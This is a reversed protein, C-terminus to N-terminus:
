LHYSQYLSKLWFLQYHFLFLFKGLLSLSLGSQLSLPLEGVEDLFITGGEGEEFLGKHQRDAGTFAGKAHGFLESELLAEPISGCNIPVLPHNRRPSAFHIGCAILEKGTGSEGTILVTTNYRAVKIALEFVQQMARSEGVMGAFDSERELYRLQDRLRRNERRLSEREEAKRLAMVVEDVKFPKSIFDYAGSKMAELALDITGYASMMIVAAEGRCDGSARLFDMGNMNPMKVDCLIFDFEENQLLELAKLGDKATTAAYGTSETMIKLMHRMNKEDDIILLKRLAQKNSM